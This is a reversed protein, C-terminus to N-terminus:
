GKFFAFRALSYRQMKKSNTELGYKAPYSLNSVAAEETNSFGTVPSDDLLYGGSSLKVHALAAPGHCVASIIKNAQYFENILKHSTEDTALDFM